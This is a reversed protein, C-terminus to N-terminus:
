RQERVAIRGCGGPRRGAVDLKAPVTIHHYANYMGPRMLAQMSADVGIYDRYIEKRNIARVVLAGHPGTMYRGSEMYLKPMYGNDAM